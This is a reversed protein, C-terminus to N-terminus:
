EPRAPNSEERVMTWYVPLAALLVCVAVVFAPYYSGTKGIIIGTVIPAVIGSLNGALNLFGTAFGVENADTMRQLLAYINGTSLGVISAAGLLIVAAHNDAARGAALLMLSSTYAVTIILKRSFTESLGTATLRDAIWGGIPEGLAFVMYPVFAYAGAETLTMHRSEVLYAPLWTVLLYFYYGYGIHGLSLGLVNRSIRGVRRGARANGHFEASNVGAPYFMLWPILWILSAFGLIFFSRRWGLSAVLAAILPVGLALGARTGSNVLGSAFGREHPRFLVSVVKMGGPSYISEGVGLLIRLAILVGLGGAFGTLGSTVSWLAFAGVYLWRIDFRDCLWGIPMLMLSYSWFFASLLVGKQPPALNLELGLIPLVVSIISRDLYNLFGAVFLLGTIPWRRRLLLERAADDMPKVSM